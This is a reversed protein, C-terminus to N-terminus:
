SAKSASQTTTLRKPKTTLVVKTETPKAHFTENEVLEVGELLEILGRNDKSKLPNKKLTKEIKVMDLMGLGILREAAAEEKSSDVELAETRKWGIEGAPLQRSRKGEELILIQHAECFRRLKEFDKQLQEALPKTQETAQELIPRTLENAHNSIADIQRQASGIEALMRNVKEAAEIPTMKSSM